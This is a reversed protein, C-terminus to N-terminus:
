CSSSTRWPVDIMLMMRKTKEDCWVYHSTVVHDDDSAADLTVACVCFSEVNGCDLDVLM